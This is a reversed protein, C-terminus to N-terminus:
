RPVLWTGALRDQLGRTPNRVAYIFGIVLLVISSAEVMLWGTRSVAGPAALILAACSLAAPSWAIVARWFARLRGAEGSGTAVAIGLFRMLLGGRFFLASLLGIAAMLCTLGGAFVGFVSIMGKASARRAAKEREAALFPEVIKAAAAVEADTPNPAQALSERAIPRLTPNFRLLTVGERWTREDNVLDAYRGAVYVRLAQAEESTTPRDQNRKLTDIRMLVKSLDTAASRANQAYVLIFATAIMIVGMFAAPLLTIVLHAIRRGPRIAAPADVLTACDQVIADLNPFERRELRSLVAARRLPLPSAVSRAAIDRLFTQPDGDAEASPGWDLLRARGAPTIWVRDPALTLPAGSGLSARIETALDLLWYRVEGWPRPFSTAQALPVGEPAEYADWAEAETRRGALWRLRGPRALNRRVQSVPPDGQQRQHIWVRRRLRDDYASIIDSVGLPREDLLVYPGVRDRKSVPMPAAATASSRLRDESERRMVVRTGSMFDHVAAYGNRSRATAFVGALVVLNFAPVSMGLVAGTPTNQYANLLPMAWASYALLPMGDTVIWSGARLLGRPIGPRHNSADVVRLGFLHKGVSRGWAGESLGYYLLILVWGTMSAKIMGVRDPPTFGNWWYSALPMTLLTLLVQDVVGAGFRIGLPAPAPASSSFPELAARLAGYSQYRDEPAKALCRMVVDALDKPVDPRAVRPSPPLEHAVKTVLKIVNPDDFPAKATLLYYLTAGVSYIDSRVDLEDGRLQEPSSFGPTGLVTGLMTLSREDFTQTSISLGFDGVKVTGDSDVFCNSPKIDRHLVGVDAAAELGAVVQLIADVAHPPPLAGSIKIRDKLTGAPALEMAIVPINNIDDTGYVYITNPHSIGAALRGERIFRARDAPGSLRSSLVKLAVRRANDRDEVEYVEGMGGRGLLRIVHYPGFVDGTELLPPANPDAGTADGLTPGVSRTPAEGEFLHDDAM